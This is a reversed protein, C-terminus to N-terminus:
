HVGLLKRGNQEISQKIPGALASLLWPLDIELHVARDEVQAAGTIQMGMATVTFDLTDGDWQESFHGVTAGYQRRMEEICEQTRRKAEVRDYQHPLSIKIKPMTNEGIPLGEERGRDHGM